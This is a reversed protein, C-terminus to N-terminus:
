WGLEEGVGCDGGSDPEPRLRAASRGAVRAIRYRQRTPRVPLLSGQLQDLGSRRTTTLSVNKGFTSPHFPSPSSSPPPLLSPPLSLSLDPFPPPIAPRASLLSPNMSENSPLGHDSGAGVWSLEEAEESKRGERANRSLFLSLSEHNPYNQMGCAHLAHIEGNEKESEKERERERERHTHSKFIM